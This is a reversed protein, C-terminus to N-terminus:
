ILQLWICNSNGNDIHVCCWCSKFKLYSLVMNAKQQHSHFRLLDGERCSTRVEVFCARDTTNTKWNYLLTFLRLLVNVHNGSEPKCLERFKGTNKRMKGTNKETIRKISFVKDFQAFLVRILKSKELRTLIGQSSFAKGNEWSKWDSHSGQNLEPKPKNTCYPQM